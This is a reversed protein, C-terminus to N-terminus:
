YNHHPVMCGKGSKITKEIYRNSIPMASKHYALLHTKFLSPHGEENILYDIIDERTDNPAICKNVLRTYVALANQISTKIKQWVMALPM